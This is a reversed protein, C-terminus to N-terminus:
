GRPTREDLYRSFRESFERCNDGGLLRLLTEPMLSETSERPGGMKQWYAENRGDDQYTLVGGLHWAAEDGFNRRCEILLGTTAMEDTTAVVDMERLLLNVVKDVVEVDCGADQAIREIMEVKM